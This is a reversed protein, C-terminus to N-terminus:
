FKGSAGGGGFSGGGGSFGGGSSGGFGGSSGGFGGFGGIFFGGGRGGNSGNSGGDHFKRKNLLMIVIILVVAIILAIIFEVGEDEEEDGPPPSELEGIVDSYIQRIGGSYDGASLMGSANRIFRGCKGDNLVGELGYGVEIRIDRSETVLLILVGNDEDKSGIGWQRATKVSFEEVSDSGISNMTLVVVQPGGGNNYAKGTEFIYRETEDDLVNAFDNVFFKDTYQPVDTKAFVAFNLALIFIMAFLVLFRSKKLKKMDIM